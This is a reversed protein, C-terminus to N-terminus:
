ALAEDLTSVTEIELDLRSIRLAAAVSDSMAVLLRVRKDADEAERKARVFCNLMSSDIFEAERLDIVVLDNEALASSLAAATTEREVLDHEGVFSLVAASAPYLEVRIESKPPTQM